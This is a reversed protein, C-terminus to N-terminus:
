GQGQRRGHSRPMTLNGKVRFSNGEIPEVVTSEFSVVPYKEADFFDASKLHADRKADNTDISNVDVSASIETLEPKKPDFSLTGQVSGFRGHVTSVMLHRVGFTVASHTPDLYWISM